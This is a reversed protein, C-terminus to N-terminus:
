LCAVLIKIQSLESMGRGRIMTPQVQVWFFFIEDCEKESVHKKKKEQQIGWLAAQAWAM